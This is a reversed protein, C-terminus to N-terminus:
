NTLSLINGRSIKTKLECGTHTRFIGEQLPRWQRPVKLIELLKMIQFSVLVNNKMCQKQFDLCAQFYHISVESHCPTAVFISFNKESKIEKKPEITKNFWIPKSPDQM